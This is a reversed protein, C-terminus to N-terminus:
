APLQADTVPAIASDGDTSADEGGWGRNPDSMQDIMSEMEQAIVSRLDTELAACSQYQVLETTLSGLDPDGCAALPSAAAASCLALAIRLAKM